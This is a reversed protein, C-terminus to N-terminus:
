PMEVWIGSKAPISTLTQMGSDKILQALYAQPSYASWTASSNNYLWVTRVSAFISFDTTLTSVGVMNWGSPLADIDEKKLTTDVVEGANIAAIISDIKTKDSTLSRIKQELTMEDFPLQQLHIKLEKTSYAGTSDTVKVTVTYYSSGYQSHYVHTNSTTYGSDDGYDYEVTDVSNNTDLTYDVNFTITTDYYFSPHNNYSSSPQKDASATLSNITLLLTAGYEYPGIDIINNVRQNGAMDTFVEIGSASGDATKIYTFDSNSASGKDILGSDGTLTYDGNDADHFGLTVDSFINNVKLSSISIKSTDIYNNKVSVITESGGSIDDGSNNSFISNYISNQEGFSIYIGDSNNAILSNTIKSSSISYLGGGLSANNDTIISNILKSSDSYFGGGNNTASNSTFTSDTVTITTNTNSSYSYSSYFGGGNNEASNDTFTSNTVTTTSYYSDSYFGAGNEASNDTFTSNTVTTTAHYSSGSYFGGGNYAASNDTFTSNTVTTATSSSFGGGRETSNNDKFVSDSVTASGGAYFGGGDDSAINSSFLCSKVEIDADASVAGGKGAENNGDIFSINELILKSANTTTNHHLIQDQKDGSLIVKDRNSGQLTLSYSEDDLFEFTGGSDDTTKYTGDALVITDDEGNSAADLLATRLEPTTSVNFTQASLNLAMFAVFLLIRKM